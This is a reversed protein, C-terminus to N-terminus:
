MPLVEVYQPGLDEIRTVGLLRMGLEVEARILDVAKVVGDTGYASQAFLFTRGLGVATAGLCLAKLVDTGRRIGGAVSLSCAGNAFPCSRISHRAWHHHRVMSLSRRRQRTLCTETSVGSSRSYAFRLSAASLECINLPWDASAIGDISSLLVIRPRSCVCGSLQRGGHNSLVVGDCGSEIALVADEVSGVGKVVLTCGAGAQQKIWGLDDWSLDPDVFSFMKESTSGGKAQKTGPVPPNEELSVRLDAERRGGVPADVTVWISDMKHDLASQLAGRALERNSNVYYQWFLPQGPKRVSALEDLSCSANSSICYIIDTEGAGKVINMEGDEHGLRALAAPSVYVPLSTAHGLISTQTDVKAVKRLVRPKLLIRDFSSRNTDLAALPGTLCPTM